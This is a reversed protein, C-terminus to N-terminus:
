AYLIEFYFLIFFIKSFYNAHSSTVLKLAVFIGSPTPKSFTYISDFGGCILVDAYLSAPYRYIMHVIIVWATCIFVEGTEFVTFKQIKDPNASNRFIQVKQRM